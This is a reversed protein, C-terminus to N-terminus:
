ATLGTGAHGGRLGQRDLAGPPRGHEVRLQQADRLLRDREREDGHQSATRARQELISAAIGADALRRALTVADDLEARAEGTAHDDLHTAALGAHARALGKVFESGRAYALARRYHEAALGTDGRLRHMGARGLHAMSLLTDNGLDRATRECEDLWPRAADPDGRDLAAEALESAARALNNPLEGDRSLEVARALIEEAAELRGAVRLGFGLHLMVASRGWDDDLQDFAQEARRGLALADDVGGHHLRIEMEIFDALAVGWADGHGRLATRAQEVRLLSATPDPEAVGEVGALLEATAAGVPDGAAQFLGAATEATRFGEDSPHVICGVPRVVLSLALLARARALDSADTPADLTTRLYTIGDTQRGVYWYWGLAGGVRLAVDPSTDRRESAWTMAARLNADEEQLRSLWVRQTPGRLQPEAEEAFATFFEAHRRTVDDHEGSRQLHEVAYARLTELMRFRGRATVVMSRDVLEGLLDLVEGSGELDCVTEAAPLTWGGRFVALRRFLAQQRQGLLEHSWDVTARLTQHRAEATRPAVTLLRFRDDLRTAIQGPSLTKVRAAALEIALPIGDLRDCVRRVDPDDVALEVDPAVRTARDVFLRAADPAELPPVPVQWEGSVGLAERSTAVIRLHEGGSRLLEDVFTASADAVHECNDIVLLAARPGLWACVLQLASGKDPDAVPLVSAVADPVRRPDDLPALPVFWVGGEFTDALGRGLALALTTKGVGGPGTLTILPTAGVQQGLRDLQVERGILPTRLSPLNGAGASPAPPGGLSPDDRLIRLELARLDASPEVGLDDTVLRRFNQFVALADAARGSRYLAVMHQARLRERLPAAATLSELEAVLVAHEGAALREDVREEVAVAHLESLRSAEARAWAFDSFEALPEGRWLQLADAFRRQRVLSSFRVSDVDEDGLDLRYGSPVTVLVEGVIRRLKSVRLHLANRPNGPPFDGWLADILHDKTFARGPATALLALVARESAGKVPRVEGHHVLEFPGLLRM